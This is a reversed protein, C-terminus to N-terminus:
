LSLVKQILSSESEYLSVKSRNIEAILIPNKLSKESVLDIPRNFLSELKELLGFYNDAYDLLEISNSFSVLFDLDSSDGFDGHAASGFLALSDVQHAKCLVTLQSLKKEVLPIM